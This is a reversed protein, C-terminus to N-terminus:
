GALAQPTSDASLLQRLLDEGDGPHRGWQHVAEECAAAASDHDLYGLALCDSLVSGIHAGDGGERLLDRATRAPTTVPLGEVVHWDRGHEGIAGRHTRVSKSRVNIRQPATLELGSATM